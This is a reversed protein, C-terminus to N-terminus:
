KKTPSIGSKYILKWIMRGGLLALAVLAASAVAKGVPQGFFDIVVNATGQGPQLPIHDDATSHKSGDSLTTIHAETTLLHNVTDATSTGYLFSESMQGTDDSRSTTVLGNSYTSLPINTTLKSEDPSISDVSTDDNTAQGLSTASSGSVTPQRGDSHRSNFLVAVTWDKESTASSGPLPTQEMKDSITLSSSVFPSPTSTMPPIQSSTMMSSITLRDSINPHITPMTKEFSTDTVSNNTNSLGTLKTQSATTNVTTVSLTFSFSQNDDIIGSNSTVMSPTINLSASSQGSTSTILGTSRDRAMTKTIALLTSAPTKLAM